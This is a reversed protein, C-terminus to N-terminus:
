RAQVPFAGVSAGGFRTAITVQSSPSTSYQLRFRIQSPSSQLIEQNIGDVAVRGQDVMSGGIQLALALGSIQYEQGLYLPQGPLVRRLKTGDNVEDLQTVTPPEVYVANYSANGGHTTVTLAGATGHSGLDPITVTLIDAGYWGNPYVVNRDYRTSAVTIATSAFAVTTNTTGFSSTGDSVVPRLLHHGRIESTGSRFVVHDQSNVHFVQGAPLLSPFLLVPREIVALTGPILIRTQPLDPASNSVKLFRLVLSDGRVNEPALFTLTTEKGTVPVKGQFTGGSKYKRVFELEVEYGKPMLDTGSIAVTSGPTTLRPAMGTITPAATAPTKAAVFRGSITPALLVAVWAGTLAVYRTTVFPNSERM